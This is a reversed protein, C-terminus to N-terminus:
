GKRILYYLIIANTTLNISQSVIFVPAKIHIAHILYCVLALVLFFYTGVSVDNYKRTKFIKYLQPLPVLIGFALGLWGIMNGLEM